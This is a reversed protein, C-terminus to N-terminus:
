HHGGEHFIVPSQAAAGGRWLESLVLQQSHSMLRGLEFASVPQPSKPFFGFAAKLRGPVWRDSSRDSLSIAILDTRLCLSFPRCQEDYEWAKETLVLPFFSM